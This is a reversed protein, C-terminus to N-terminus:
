ASRPEGVRLANTPAGRRASGRLRHLGVLHLLISLPVLITPILVLPLMTVARNPADLSLLHLQGPVTLVGLTLAAVLDAIGFLNWRLAAGRANPAGRAILAAVSPAAIGIAVDGVGAPLAFVAPLAGLWWEVLFVVGLVRYLQFGIIWDLPIQHVVARLSRSSLYALYGLAMPIFAYAIPPVGLTSAPAFFGRAALAFVAVVWVAFFAASLIAVSRSTGRAFRRLVLWALVPVGISAATLTIKVWLPFSPQM